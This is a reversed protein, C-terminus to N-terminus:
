STLRTKTKTASKDEDIADKYYGQLKSEEGTRLMPKTEGITTAVELM